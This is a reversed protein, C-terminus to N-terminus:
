GVVFEKITKGADMVGKLPLGFSLARFKTPLLNKSKFLDLSTAAGDFAVFIQLLNDENNQQIEHVCDLNQYTAQGEAERQLCAGVGNANTM